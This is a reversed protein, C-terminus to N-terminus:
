GFIAAIMEDTYATLGPFDVYPRYAKELADHNAKALALESMADAMLASYLKEKKRVAKMDAGAAVARDLRLHRAAGAIPMATFGLGAQPILLTETIEPWLPSPCLIVDFGRRLAESCAGDMCDGALGFRDDLVYMRPALKCLTENLVLEGSCSIARVFRKTVHGGHGELGTLERRVTTKGRRIANERADAPLNEPFGAYKVSKAASLFAYASKYNAKYAATHELVSQADAPEMDCSCFCGLNVYSSDVATHRPEIVHPATGDAFGLSLEPIYVGDLSDPDGSCLIYEVDLGREEASRGIRRMFRSKGGGPGGKIIYLFDGPACCFGGYLSAFGDGSNAGLFYETTM